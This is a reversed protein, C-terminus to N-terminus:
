HGRQGKIKTGRVLLFYIAIAGIEAAAIVIGMPLATNEGGMGVLPAVLGGFLFT